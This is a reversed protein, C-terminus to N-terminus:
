SMNILFFPESHNASINSTYVKMQLLPVQVM